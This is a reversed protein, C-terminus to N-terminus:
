KEIIAPKAVPGDPQKQAQNPTAPYLTQEGESRFNRLLNEMELKPLSILPRQFTQEYSVIKNHVFVNLRDEKQTSNLVDPPITTNLHYYQTVPYGHLKAVGKAKDDEDTVVKASTTQAVVMNGTMCLAMVLFGFLGKRM